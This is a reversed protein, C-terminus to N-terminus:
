HRGMKSAFYGALFVAALLVMSLIGLLTLKTSSIFIGPPPPPVYPVHPVHPAPPLPPPDLFRPPQYALPPATKTAWTPSPHTPAEPVPSTSAPHLLGDFGNEFLQAGGGRSALANDEASEQAEEEPSAAEAEADPTPVILKESCHPCDVVSGAKRRAIGLLKDCYCCRFRIPM